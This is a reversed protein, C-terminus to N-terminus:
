HGGRASRRARLYTTVRRSAAIDTAVHNTAFSFVEAAEVYIGRPWQWDIQEVEAGDPSRLGCRYVQRVKGGEESVALALHAVLDHPEDSHSVVKFGALELSAVMSRRFGQPVGLENAREVHVPDSTEIVPDRDVLVISGLVDDATRHVPPVPTLEGTAMNNCALAALGLLVGVCLARVTPRAEVVRM